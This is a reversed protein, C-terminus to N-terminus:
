DPPEDSTDILGFRLAVSAAATRSGVDLKQLIRGVHNSVTRASIFLEDAIARDSKGDILLRLVEVERRSLPIERLRASPVPRAIVRGVQGTDASRGARPEHAGPGAMRPVQAVAREAIRRVEALVDGQGLARGEGWAIRFATPAMSKRLRASLDRVAEPPESRTRERLERAIGLLRVVEERREDTAPLEALICAIDELIEVAWIRDSSAYYVALAELLHQVAAAPRNMASSAQALVDLAQGIGRPEGIHRLLALGQEALSSADGPQGTLLALEGLTVLANGTFLFDGTTETLAVAETLWREAVDLRRRKLELDGLNILARAVLRDDGTERRLNLSEVLMEHAQEPQGIDQLLLGYNNLIRALGAIDNVQRRLPLAKAYFRQATVRDGLLMARTALAAYGTSMVDDPVPRTATEALAVAREVIAGEPLLLGRMGWYQFLTSGVIRLAMEHDGRLMAESTAARLNDVERQISLLWDGTQTTALAIQREQTFALAWAILRGAAHDREGAGDLHERALERVPQLLTYRSSGDDLLDHRVLSSEVLEDLASIVRGDNLPAVAEIAALSASAPFIGLHRYLTQAPEGLLSVSWQVTQRITHHRDDHHPSPHRLLDLAGRERQLVRQMEAPGLATIRAAALEIALPLGELQRCIAVIAPANGATLRFDPAADQARALFLRMAPADHTGDGSAPVALPPLPEVIENPLRLPSRSTILLQLTPLNNVLTVLQPVAGLVQEFNDLVILMPRERLTDSVHEVADTGVAPEGITTAIAPLVLAPDALTALAVFAVGLDSRSVAVLALHSALHTKGVGGPGTITVVQRRHEFLLARLRDVVPQRGILSSPYRPLGSVIRGGGAVNTPQITAVTSGTEPAGSGSARSAFSSRLPVVPSSM